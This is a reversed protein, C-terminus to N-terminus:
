MWKFARRAEAAFVKKLVAYGLSVLEHEVREVEYEGRGAMQQAHRVVRSAACARARWWATTHRPIGRYAAFIVLNRTSLVLNIMTIM